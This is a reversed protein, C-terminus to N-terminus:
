IMSDIYSGVVWKRFGLDVPSSGSSIRKDARRRRRRNQRSATLAAHWAERRACGPPTYWGDRGRERRDAGLSADAAGVVDVYEIAM